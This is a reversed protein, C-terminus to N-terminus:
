LSPARGDLIAIASSLAVAPSISAMLDRGREGREHASWGAAEPLEPVLSWGNAAYPGFRAPGCSSWPAQLVLTPTGLAAALHLPGSGNGVVLSAAQVLAPLTALDGTFRPMRRAPLEAADLLKATADDGPSTSFVVHTGEAALLTALRVFHGAPWPPCSAGGSEPRLVVFRRGIGHEGLWVSVSEAAAGPIALSFIAPGGSAGARHAYSLAYEVEHRDSSAPREDVRREFLASYVRHGPGVRHRVRMTAAAWSLRAAASMSVFLDARFSQMEATLREPDGTDEIVQDVGAALRVLPATTSRVLLALWACPYASRLASVAPLGLVLPGLAADRAVLIRRVGSWAEGPRRVEESRRAVQHLRPRAQV